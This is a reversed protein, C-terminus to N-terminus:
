VVRQIRDRSPREENPDGANLPAAWYRAV